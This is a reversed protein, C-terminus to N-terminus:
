TSKEKAAREAEWEAFWDDHEKQMAAGLMAFFAGPEAFCRYGKDTTTNFFDIQLLGGQIVEIARIEIDDGM